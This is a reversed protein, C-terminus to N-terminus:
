FLELQIEKIGRCLTKQPNIKPPKTEKAGVMAKEERKGQKDEPTKKM